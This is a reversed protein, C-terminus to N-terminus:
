FTWVAAGGSIDLEAGVVYSSLPSGLLLVFPVVEDARGWRHM